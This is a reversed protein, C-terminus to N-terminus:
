KPEYVDEPHEKKLKEFKLRSLKEDEVNKWIPGDWFRTDNMNFAYIGSTDESRVFTRFCAIRLDDSIDKQTSSNTFTESQQSLYISDNQCVGLFCTADYYWDRNKDPYSHRYEPNKTIVFVALKNLDKGYAITDIIIQTSDFYDTSYFFGEHKSLMLRLLSLTYVSDKSYKEASAKVISLYAKPTDTNKRFEMWGYIQTFYVYAAWVLVVAIVFLIAKKIM